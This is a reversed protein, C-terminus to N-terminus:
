RFTILGWNEMAGSAFDPIAILDLKDLAYPVGFVDEYYDLLKPTINLAYSAKSIFEPRAWVKITKNVNDKSLYTTELSQFDSLVYAVLYTSM